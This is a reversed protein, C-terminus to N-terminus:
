RFTRVAAMMLFIPWLLTVAAASATVVLWAAVKSSALFCYLWRGWFFPQEEAIRRWRERIRDRSIEEGWLHADFFLLGVLFGSILYVAIFVQLDLSTM